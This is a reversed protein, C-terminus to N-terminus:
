QNEKEISRLTSKIGDDPKGFFRSAGDDKTFLGWAQAGKKAFLVYIFNGSCNHPECVKYLEYTSKGFCRIERPTDVGNGGKIYRALWPELNREGTFM